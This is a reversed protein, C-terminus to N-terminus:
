EVVSMRTLADDAMARAQKLDRPKPGCGSCGCSAIRNLVDAALRLQEHLRAADESRLVALAALGVPDCPWWRDCIVCRERETGNGVHNAVIWRAHMDSEAICQLSM